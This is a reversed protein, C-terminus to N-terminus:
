LLDMINHIIINITSDCVNTIKRLLFSRKLCIFTLGLANPVAYSVNYGATDNSYIKSQRFSLISHLARDPRERLLNKVGFESMADYALIDKTSHIYM